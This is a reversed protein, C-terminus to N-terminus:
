WTISDSMFTMEATIAPFLGFDPINKTKGDDCVFCLVAALEWSPNANMAAKGVRAYSQAREIGCPIPSAVRVHALPGHSLLDIVSQRQRPRRCAYRSATRCPRLITSHTVQMGSSRAPDM